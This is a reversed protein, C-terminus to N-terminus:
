PVRGFRRKKWAFILGFGGLLSWIGITGPEPVTTCPECVLTICATVCQTEKDTFCLDSLSIKLKGCTDFAVYVPDFLIKLDTNWDKVKGPFAIVNAVNAVGNIAPLDFFLYGVAQLNDTENAGGSSAPDINVEKLQVSGFNFSKSQGKNLTFSQSPLSSDIKFVADLQGYGTGWGSGLVWHNGTLGNSGIEFQVSATAFHNSILAVVGVLWIGLLRHMILNEM